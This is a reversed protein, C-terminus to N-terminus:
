ADATAADTPTPPEAGKPNAAPAKEGRVFGEVLESLQETVIPLLAARLGVRVGFRVLRATLPTFIGGGLAYGVGLAAALAGYPHREVRAKLDAVPSPPESSPGPGGASAAKNADEDM